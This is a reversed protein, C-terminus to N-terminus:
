RIMQYSKKSRKKTRRRSKKNTKKKTKKKSKKKYKKKRKKLGAREGDSLLGITEQSGTSRELSGEQGQRVGLVRNAHDTGPGTSAGRDRRRARITGHGASIASAAAFAGLGLALPGTTLAAGAGSATMAAASLAAQSKPHRGFKNELERQRAIAFERVGRDAFEEGSMGMPELNVWTNNDNMKNINQILKDPHMDRIIIGEATAFRLRFKLLLREVKNPDQTMFHKIADKTLEILRERFEERDTGNYEFDFQRSNREFNILVM